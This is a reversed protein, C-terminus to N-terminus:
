TVALTFFSEDKWLYTPSLIPCDWLFIYWPRVSIWNETGIRSSLQLFLLYTYSCGLFIKSRRLNRRLSTEFSTNESRALKDLLQLLFVSLLLSYSDHYMINSPSQPHQGLLCNKCFCGFTIKYFHTFRYLNVNSALKYLQVAKGQKGIQALM